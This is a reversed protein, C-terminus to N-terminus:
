MYGAPQPYEPLPTVWIPEKRHQFHEVFAGESNSSCHKALRSIQKCKEKHPLAQTAVAQYRRLDPAEANESPVLSQWDTLNSRASAVLAKGRLSSSNAVRQSDRAAVSHLNPALNPIPEAYLFVDYLRASCTDDVLADRHLMELCVEQVKQHGSLRYLPHWWSRLHQPSGHAAMQFLNMLQAVQHATAQLHCLIKSVEKLYHRVVHVSQNADADALRGVLYDLLAAPSASRKRRKFDEYIVQEVEWNEVFEKSAQISCKSSNRRIKKKRGQSEAIRCARQAEQYSSTLFYCDDVWRIQRIGHDRLYRDIDLLFLDALYFSPKPGQPLGQNDPHWRSLLYLIAERVEQLEVSSPALASLEALISEGLVQHHITEFFDALDWSAVWGYQKSLLAVDKQFQIWGSKGGVHPQRIFSRTDPHRLPKSWTELRAVLAQYIVQDVLDPITIIRTSAPGKPILFTAPTSGFSFSCLRSRVDEELVRRPHSGNKFVEAPSVSEPPDYDSSDRLVREIADPIDFLGLDSFM